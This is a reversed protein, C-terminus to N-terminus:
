PKWTENIFSILVVVRSFCDWSPKWWATSTGDGWAIAKLRLWTFHNREVCPSWQNRGHRGSNNPSYPINASAWRYIITVFLWQQQAQFKTSRPTLTKCDYSRPHKSRKHRLHVCDRILSQKLGKGSYRLLDVVLFEKFHCPYLGHARCSLSKPGPHLSLPLSNPTLIEPRLAVVHKVLKLM